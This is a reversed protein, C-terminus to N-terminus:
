ASAEGTEGSAKRLKETTQKTAEDRVNQKEVIDGVRALIAFLCVSGMFVLPCIAWVGMGNILLPMGTILCFFGSMVIFCTVIGERGYRKDIRKSCVFCFSLTFFIILLTGVIAMLDIENLTVFHLTNM